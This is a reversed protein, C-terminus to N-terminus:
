DMCSVNLAIVLSELDVGGGRKPRLYSELSVGVTVAQLQKNIPTSESQRGPSGRGARPRRKQFVNHGKEVRGKM